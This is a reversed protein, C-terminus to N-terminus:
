TSNTPRACKANAASLDFGVCRARQDNNIHLVAEQWAAAQDDFVAILDNWYDVANGFSKVIHHHRLVPM